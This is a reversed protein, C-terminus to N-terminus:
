FRDQDIYLDYGRLETTKAKKMCFIFLSSDDIIKDPIRRGCKQRNQDLLTMKMRKSSLM